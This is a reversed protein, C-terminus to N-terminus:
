SKARFVGKKPHLKSGLFRLNQGFISNKWEGALVSIKLGSPLAWRFLFFILFNLFINKEFFKLNKEIKEFCIPGGHLTRSTRIERSVTVALDNKQRL